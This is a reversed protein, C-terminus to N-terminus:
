SLKISNKTTNKMLKTDHGAFLVLGYIKETNRLM